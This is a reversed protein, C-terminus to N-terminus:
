ESEEFWTFQCAWSEGGVLAAGNYNIAIQQAVGSLEVVSGFPILNPSYQDITLTAALPLLVKARNITGITSNITPNATYHGVTPAVSAVDPDHPVVTGAVFTGGTNAANRKILYFDANRAATATGLIRAETVKITTSASGTLVCNDTPTAPPTFNATTVSYGNGQAALIASGFNTIFANITNLVSADVTWTGAQQSNVSFPTPLFRGGQSSNLSLTVSGTSIAAVRARFKSLSGVQCIWVGVDSATGSSSSSVSPIDCSVAVWGATPNNTVEFAVTLGTFTGSVQVSIASNNRVDIEVNGVATFTQAEAKNLGISISLILLLLVFLIRKM